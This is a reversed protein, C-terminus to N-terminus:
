GNHEEKLYKKYDNIVDAMSSDQEITDFLVEDYTDAMTLEIIEKPILAKDRTTPVFRDRAQLIDELPRFTDTFICAEATDLTLGEKGADIQIGLMYMKGNQFRHILEQRYKLTVKGSIVKMGPIEKELINLWKTSRSFIITPRTPYDKAYQKLWDLKPSKGKLGAMIPHQLIQRERILADMVGYTVLDETEFYEHLEKIYKLQTSTPQLRVRTPKEINPLWQMVDKRKRQTSLSDLMQAFLRKHGPKYGVPIVSWESFPSLSYTFWEDIFDNYSTYQKPYLFKLIQFIKWPESGSPTGTLAYRYTCKYALSQM